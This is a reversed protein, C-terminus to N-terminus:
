ISVFMNSNKEVVTLLFSKLNYLHTLLPLTLGKLVFTEDM